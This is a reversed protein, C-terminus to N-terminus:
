GPQRRKLELVRRTKDKLQRHFGVGPLVSGREMAVADYTLDRGDADPGSGPRRFLMSLVWSNHGPTPFVIMRHEGMLDLALRRFKGPRKGM